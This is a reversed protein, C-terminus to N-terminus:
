ANPIEHTTETRITTNQISIAFTIFSFSNLDFQYTSKESM